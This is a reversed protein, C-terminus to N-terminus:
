YAALAAGVSDRRGDLVKLQDLEATLAEVQVVLNRQGNSLEQVSDQLLRNKQILASRSSFIM